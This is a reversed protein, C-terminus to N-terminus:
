RRFRVHFHNRHSKWHRVIGHNKGRGRPYQFLEDLEDKATGHKHAYDYLIKQLTYDMFIYRVEHTDLFAKVLAWTRPVDLTDANVGSFRTRTADAGKLVYGMDVDRGLRHSLHPDIKGGGKKSIDGILVKPARGFRRRYQAVASEILGITKPTGYALRPRKVHVRDDARMKMSVAVRKHGRAKGSGGGRSRAKKKKPPLFPEEFGGDVWIVLTHGVRLRNPDTVAGDQMAVVEAVTLGYSAAIETLTEGSAVRHEKRERIRPFIEPCVRISQGIRILNPDTVAPNLDVLDRRRVGYRGAIGGLHEGETVVHEWLPVRHDCDAHAPGRTPRDADALPGDDHAADQEEAAATHTHAARAPRPKASKGPTKKATAGRTSVTKISPSSKGKGGDARAM